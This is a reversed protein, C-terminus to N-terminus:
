LSELVEDCNNIINTFTFLKNTTNDINIKDSSLSINTNYKVINIDNDSAIRFDVSTNTM